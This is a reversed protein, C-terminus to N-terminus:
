KLYATIIEAMREYGDENFHSEDAFFEKKGYFEEEIDILEVGNRKAFNRLAENYEPVHKRFTEDERFFSSDYAHPRTMLILRINNDQCLFLLKSLNEKYDEKSVRPMYGATKEPLKKIKDLLFLVSKYKMLFRQFSVSYKSPPVFDKDQMKLAGAPDNWGFSFFIIDPKWKTADEEARKVGQYSSWGAVGANFVEFSDANVEKFLLPYTLSDQGDTNSDGYFFIRKKGSKNQSYLDGKFGYRNYPPETSPKWFLVPDYVKSKDGTIHARRWDDGSGRGEIILPSYIEIMNRAILFSILGESLGTLLIIYFLILLFSNMRKPAKFFRCEWDILFLADTLFITCYVIRKAEAGFIPLLIFNLSFLTLILSLFFWGNKSKKRRFVAIISVSTLVYVATNFFIWM